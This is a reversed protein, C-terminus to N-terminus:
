EYGTRPNQTMWREDLGRGEPDAYVYVPTHMSLQIENDDNECYM